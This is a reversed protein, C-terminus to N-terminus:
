RFNFIIPFTFGVLLIWVLYVPLFAVISNEVEEITSKSKLTKFLRITVLIIHILILINSGLVALRNPTIGWQSVRFVIASLAIGNVLITVISLVFLLVFASKNTTNKPMGAISFLIIAMVGILLANFLLLFERDNYPDKGTIIVAALFVTLTILVLPTFIKAIVPSVKNVLQPNSLVLYAGIFPIAAMGWIAVHKFYLEEAPIDLLSFLGITIVSFLVGAIVILATMVLLDGNFRLYDLRKSNSRLDGGMYTFGLLAWLLFPVHMCALLLTDSGPTEPLLNIYLLSVAIIGMVVSLQKLPINQKWAMYMTLLPFVIFGINRPYFIDPDLSTFDPLKAIAGALLSLLIVFTIEWRNGWALDPSEFNLRENWFQAATHQNIQPYITNFARRFQTKNDRYLKELQGPNDLNGIIFEKM